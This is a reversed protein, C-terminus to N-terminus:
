YICVGYKGNCYLDVWTCGPTYKLGLYDAMDYIIKSQIKNQEFYLALLNWKKVAELGCLPMREELTFSFSKKEVGFTSNGRTEIEPVQGEYELNGASEVIEIFGEERNEKSESIHDLSGSETDIFVAPLNASQMFGVKWEKGKYKIQYVRDEEWSLRSGGSVYITNEKVFAPIFFWAIGTSEDFCPKIEERGNEYKIALMINNEEDASFCLTHNEELMLLAEFLVAMIFVLILLLNKKM